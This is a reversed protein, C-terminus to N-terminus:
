KLFMLKPIKQKSLQKRPEARQYYLFNIKKWLIIKMTFPRKGSSCVWTILKTWKNKNTLAAYIARSTDRLLVLLHNEREIGLKLEIIQLIVTIILLYYAYIAINEAIATEKLILLMPLCILLLLALLAPTRSESHFLVSVLRDIFSFTSKYLRTKELSRNIFLIAYVAYLLIILDLAHFKFYLGFAAVILLSGYCFTNTKLFPIIIHRRYYIIFSVVAALSAFLIFQLMSLHIYHDIFMRWSLQQDRRIILVIAVIPLYSLIVVTVRLLKNSNNKFDM